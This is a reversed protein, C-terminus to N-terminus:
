DARGRPGSGRPGSPLLASAAVLAESRELLSRGVEPARGQAFGVLRALYDMMKAASIDNVGDRWLTVNRWAGRWTRNTLVKVQEHEDIALVVSSGHVPPTPAGPLHLDTLMWHGVRSQRVPLRESDIARLDLVRRMSLLAAALAAIRTEEAAVLQTAYRDIEDCRAVLDALARPTPAEIPQQM